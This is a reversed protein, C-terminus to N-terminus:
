KRKAMNRHIPINRLNKSSIRMLPTCGPRVDECTVGGNGNKLEVISIYLYGDHSLKENGKSSKVIRFSIDNNAAM